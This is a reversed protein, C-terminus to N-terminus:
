GAELPKEANILLAMGLALGFSSAATVFVASWGFERQVLGLLLPCCAAGFNGWMNGWGLVPGARHGGIDQAIAWMAPVALDTGITVVCLAAIVAWASDATACFLYAAACAFMGLVIPLIRGRQHGLKRIWWDTLFGGVFMGACGVFGPLSSLLGKEGGTKLHVTQLYDPLQTIVFAWGLNIFFQMLSFAWLTRSGLFLMLPPRRPALNTQIGVPEPLAAEAANTWPHQNPHDRVVWYFVVAWLMGAAGFMVLVVRWGPVVDGNWIAVGAFLAVLLPTILQGLAAGFRGGFSVMSNAFGRSAIPFWSKVLSAANPYAGAETVGVALRAGLLAALGGAMGSVLTFFSWLFLCMAMMQRHGFRLGLVGAPVQSFAYSWFFASKVWDMEEPSINLDRQIDKSVQAICVRDVYMFIAMMATVALVLYRVSSPKETTANM